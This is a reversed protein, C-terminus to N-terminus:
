GKVAMAVARANAASLNGSVSLVGDFSSFSAQTPEILSANVVKGGMDIALLRHFDEEAVRDFAAAGDSSLHVNVIWQGAPDKQASATDVDAASLRM